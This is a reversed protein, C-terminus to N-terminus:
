ARREKDICYERTQGKRKRELHEAKILRRRNRRERIRADIGELKQLILDRKM